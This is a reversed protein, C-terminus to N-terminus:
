ASAILLHLRTRIKQKKTNSRSSNRKAKLRQHAGDVRCFALTKTTASCKKVIIEPTESEGGIDWCSHVYETDCDVEAISFSDLAIKAHIPMVRHCYQYAYLVPGGQYM